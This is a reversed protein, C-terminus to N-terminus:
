FTKGPLCAGTRPDSKGGARDARLCRYMRFLELAPQFTRLHCHSDDEM